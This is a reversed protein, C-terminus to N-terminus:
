RGIEKRLAENLQRTIPGVTGKGLTKGDMKVVGMVEM